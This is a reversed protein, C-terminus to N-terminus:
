KQKQEWQERELDRPEYWRPQYNWSLVYKFVLAATILVLLFVLLRM